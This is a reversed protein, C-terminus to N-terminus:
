VTGRWSAQVLWVSVVLQISVIVSSTYVCDVGKNFFSWVEEKTCASGCVLIVLINNVHSAICYLSSSHIVHTASLDEIMGGNWEM